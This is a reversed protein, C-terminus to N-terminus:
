FIRACYSDVIDGRSVIGILKGDGSTVPIRNIQNEALMKSLESITTNPLATIVPTSMIDKATKERIPKAVCGQNSLCEAIVRMFSGTDDAGMKSLFDKESIIGLVSNDESIVPVGSIKAAAMQRAIKILSTEPLVSHVERTMIDEATVLQSLREVAHRYALGYIENFDAPTIDIYGHISKMAALIDDESLDVSLSDFISCQDNNAM